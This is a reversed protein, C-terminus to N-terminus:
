KELEKLLEEVAAKLQTDEGKVITEPSNAVKIDPELQSNELYSGDPLRYGVVPIGFVLSPDQLREWSVSTMTGPVPMGVLKGIGRHSYVWPTGHANSYNAECMVMISPKNWRRSPMDCAERGRVVQTFYKQGSFLIEIDEHLRGGGNFRTDIVIGERNNYKSLIDPVDFGNGMPGTLQFPDKMKLQAIKETGEGVVQYLFEITSSDPNWRHVSIPRSLFPAEDAGWARLTFFQGAHPAHDRDPWVVTLLRIDPAIVENRLVTAECCAARM